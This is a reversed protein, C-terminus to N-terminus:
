RVVELRPRRPRNRRVLGVVLLLAVVVATVTLAPGSIATSRVSMTTRGLEHVGRPDVVRVTVPFTGRGLAVTDFAVTQAAETSLVVEQSEGDPWTLRGASDVEVRVRLPDGATRQITVPITGQESTLTVRADSPMEVSGFTADIAAAADEVLRLAQPSRIGTWWASTARLLQDELDDPQRGAITAEPESLASRLGNLQRRTEVLRSLVTPSLPDAAPALDVPRPPETARAVQDTAATPRLWPAAFLAGLTDEASRDPPDWDAPALILLPRGADGPRELFLGATEIVTRQAAIRSGHPLSRRELLRGVWPDAVTATLLRASPTRLRRLAPPIDASANVDIDPGSVAEWPLLVHDGSLLDTTDDEIPSTALFVGPDPRRGLLAETRRRGEAVTTAASRRLAPTSALSALHADAYPGVVPAYPARDVIARLRELARNSRQAAASEPEVNVIETEGDVTRTELFGDARDRLDEVLHAAPALTLGAAVHREAAVLLRELRGDPAIAEDVGEPYTGDSARWPADSFPVVVVAELPRDPIQHLHVVATRVQDLVATGRLLTLQVPYIRSTDTGGWGGADADVTETIGVFGGARLETGDTVATDQVHVPNQPGDEGDLAVRLQSRSAVAPFTEVVLRVDSIPDVSTNEILVRVSLDRPPDDEGTSPAGPGVIGTLSTVVIRASGDQAHAAPPAMLASLTTVALAVAAMRLPLIV